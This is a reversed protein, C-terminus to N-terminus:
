FYFLLAHLVNSQFAQPSPLNEMHCCNKIDFVKKESKLIKFIWKEFNEFIMYFFFVHRKNKLMFCSLVYKRSFFITYIVCPIVWIYICPPGNLDGWRIKESDKGSVSFHKPCIIYLSTTPLHAILIEWGTYIYIYIPWEM